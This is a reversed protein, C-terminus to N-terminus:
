AGVSRHEADVHLGTTMLWTVARQVEEIPGELRVQMWGFDTDINAKTITVRIEFDRCLRNIWPEGVQEDRATLNVDIVTM